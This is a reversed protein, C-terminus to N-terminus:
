DCYTAKTSTYSSFGVEYLYVAPFPLFIIVAKESLKINKKSVMGVSLYYNILIPLLISDSVMLIFKYETINFYMQDKM